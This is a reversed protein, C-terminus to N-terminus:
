PRDVRQPPPQRPGSLSGRLRAMGGIWRDYDSSKRRIYEAVKPHPLILFREDALGQVVCEAVEEPSLIGDVSAASQEGRDGLMATRVAQPCLVSVRIGQDRHMIALNEAFGVAAHKTTSYTASGIQSLLGAASVTNLLYGGGRAIMGPLLARAAYVHAMVHILWCREFDEDPAAAANMPDPDPLIIGANSCFLDIPGFRNEAETIVRRIDAEKSVDCGLGVAGLERAAADVKPADIDAIALGRVGEQMFRTALARGIGGAGGTIVVAKGALQM